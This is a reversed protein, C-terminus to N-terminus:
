KKEIVPRLLVTTTQPVTSYDYLATKYGIILVKLQDYQRWEWQSRMLTTMIMDDDPVPWLHMHRHLMNGLEWLKDPKDDLDKVALHLRVTTEPAVQVGGGATQWYVPNDFEVYVAPLDPPRTEDYREYQGNYWHVSRIENLEAIRQKILDFYAKM